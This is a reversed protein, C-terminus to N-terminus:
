SGSTGAAEDGSEPDTKPVDRAVPETKPAEPESQADDRARPDGQGARDEPPSEDHTM